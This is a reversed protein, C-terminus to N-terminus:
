TAKFYNVLQLEHEAILDGDSAKLEIIIKNEVIINAFFIGAMNGKSFVEVPIQIAANLGNLKLETLLANEYVNKQLDLDQNM